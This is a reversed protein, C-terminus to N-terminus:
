EKTRKISEASNTDESSNNSEASSKGSLISFLAEAQQLVDEDAFSSDVQSSRVVYNFMARATGIEGLMVYCQGIRLMSTASDAGCVGAYSYLALARRYDGMDYCCRAAGMLYKHNRPRMTLLFSYTGEAKDFKKNRWFNLAISYIMEASDDSIAKKGVDELEDVHAYIQAVENGM